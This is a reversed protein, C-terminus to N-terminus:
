GRYPTPRILETHVRDLNINFYLHLLLTSFLLGVQTWCYTKGYRSSEGNVLGVLNTEGEPCFRSTYIAYSLLLPEAASLLAVINLIKNM